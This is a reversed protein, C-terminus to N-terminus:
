RLSLICENLIFNIFLMSPFGYVTNCFKAVFINRRSFMKEWAENGKGLNRQSGPVAFPSLSSFPTVSISIFGSCCFCRCLSLPNKNKYPNQHVSFKSRCKLFFFFNAGDKLNQGERRFYLPNMSKFYKSFHQLFMYLGTFCHSSKRGQAKVKSNRYLPTNMPVRLYCKAGSTLTSSGRQHTLCILPIDVSQGPTALVLTYSSYCSPSASLCCGKIVSSM